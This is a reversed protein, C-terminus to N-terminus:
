VNHNPEYRIQPQQWKFKFTYDTQIKANERDPADTQVMTSHKNAGPNKFRDRVQVRVCALGYIALALIMGFFINARLDVDMEVHLYNTRVVEVLTEAGVSSYENFENFGMPEAAGCVVCGMLVLFHAIREGKLAKTGIDAVNDDTGIATVELEGNKVYQQVFLTNAHIHKMRPGPGTRKLAVRAASSDCRLRAKLPMKWSEMFHKVYLGEITGKVGAYFESEGSAITVLAQTKVVHGLYHEGHMLVVSTTSKRTAICGQHDSDTCVDCVGQWKQWPYNIVLRPAGKLYRGIRKLKNETLETPAHADRLVEKAAFAMDPRDEALFQGAGGVERVARHRDSDLPPFALEGHEDLEDPLNTQKVCPSSVSKADVLGLDAIMGKAHKPDAEYSWGDTGVNIIRKTFKGTKELDDDLGLFAKTECRYKTHIVKAYKELDERYGIAAFDDGHFLCWTRHLMNEPDYKTLACTNVENVEFGDEVHTKIVDQQFLESASTTGYLAVKLKWIKGEGPAVDSPPRMAVTEESPIQLFATTLDLIIMCLKRDTACISLGARLVFMGPTAAFRSDM